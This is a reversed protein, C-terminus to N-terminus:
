TAVSTQRKAATNIQATSPIPCAGFGPPQLAIM